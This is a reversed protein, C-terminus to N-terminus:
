CWKWPLFLVQWRLISPLRLLRPWVAAWCHACVTTPSKYGNHSSAVLAPVWTFLRARAASRSVPLGAILSIAGGIFQVLLNIWHMRGQYNHLRELVNSVSVQRYRDPPFHFGAVIILAGIVPLFFHWRGDLGEFNEADGPLFYSLSGNIVMRFAIILVGSSCGIIIGLLTLQPLANVGALRYRFPNLLKRALIKILSM